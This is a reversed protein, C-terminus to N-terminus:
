HIGVAGVEVLGLVVAAVGSAFLGLGSETSSGAVVVFGAEAVAALTVGTLGLAARRWRGALPGVVLGLVSGVLAGAAIWPVAGSGPAAGPLSLGISAARLSLGYVALEARWGAIAAESLGSGWALRVVYPLNCGARCENLPVSRYRVAAAPSVDSIGGPGALEPGIPGAKATEWGGATELGVRLEAREAVRGAEPDLHVRVENSSTGAAGGVTTAGGVVFEREVFSHM